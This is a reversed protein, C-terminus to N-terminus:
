FFAGQPNQFNGPRDNGAGACLRRVAREACHLGHPLLDAGARGAPTLSDAKQSGALGEPHLTGNSSLQGDLGPHFHFDETETLLKENLYLKEVSDWEGEGLAIFLITRDPDTQDKLIVNGGVLHRGYALTVPKGLSATLIDTNTTNVPMTELRLPLLLLLPLM